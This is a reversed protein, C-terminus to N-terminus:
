KLQEQDQQVLLVVTSTTCQQLSTGRREAGACPTIRRWPARRRIAGQSDYRQNGHSAQGHNENDYRIQSTFSSHPRSHLKERYQILHVSNKGGKALQGCSASASPADADRPASKTAGTTTCHRRTQMRKAINRRTAGSNKEIQSQFLTKERSRM